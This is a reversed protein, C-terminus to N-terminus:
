AALNLPELEGAIGAEVKQFMESMSTGLKEGYLSQLDYGLQTLNRSMVSAKDGAVGFGTIISNLVGQEGMFEAPDIGLVDGVKQAYDYAEQAYEGLSVKFTNMVEVYETASHISSALSSSAKKFIAVGGITKLAARLINTKSTVGTLRGALEKLGAKWSKTHTSARRVTGNYQETSTILRQIRSPFASFGGSVKQMEDAFPKMAEALRQMQDAFKDLDVSDLATVVEPLKKLQNLFPGLQQKGLESLPQLGDALAKLKNQATDPINNVAAGIERLQTGISSSIKLGETQSKLANLADGLATLKGTNLGSVADRIKGINKAVTNLSSGGSGLSSKLNALSQALEDLGHSAEASDNVIQFEIGQMEVNAATKRM